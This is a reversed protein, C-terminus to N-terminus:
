GSHAMSIGFRILPPSFVHIAIGILADLAGNLLTCVVAVSLVEARQISDQNTAMLSVRGHVLAGVTLGEALLLRAAAANAAAIKDQRPLLYGNHYPLNHCFVAFITKFLKQLQVYM